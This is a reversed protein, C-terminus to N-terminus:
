SKIQGTVILVSLEGFASRAVSNRIEYSLSVHRDAAKRELVSIISYDYLAHATDRDISIFSGNDMPWFTPYLEYPGENHHTEVIRMHPSQYFALGKELITNIAFDPDSITFHDGTRILFTAVQMPDCRLNSLAWTAHCWAIPNSERPPLLTIQERAWEDLAAKGAVTNPSADRKASAPQYDITGEFSNGGGLAIGPALGGVTAIGSYYAPETRSRLSLAALGVLGGNKYLPRLREARERIASQTEHDTPQGAIRMLWECRSEADILQDLSRHVCVSPGRNRVFYVDVDLGACIISLCQELPIRIENSGDMGYRGVLISSVDTITPKVSFRVLTSAEFGFGVPPGSSILPRLSLGNPFRIQKTTDFGRDFRRSSVTVSSAAMFVSYFGVGFKGVPDNGAAALGPFEERSMPSSWFSSGFDLLPGTLVRYSMGLGNDGVSLVYDDGDSVLEVTVRGSFSKDLKRRGNISDRANQILERLVVALQQDAGYLKEGGLAGILRELNSVHIEVAKPEWGTTPIYKSAAAPSSTGSVRRIQFPPSTAAQPRQGLTEFSAMLEKDVLRIADYAVWWADANKEDFPKGATFIISSNEADALDLDARELWNQATWHQASIGHLSALARLFDPARRSDIHAADSCRLLCALKVPDVRWDRPMSPLANIQEPLGLLDEIPWHHSAAIRGIIQGYHKRLEHSEILYLPDKEPTEWSALALDSARSAHLARMAAFDAADRVQSDVSGEAQKYVAYADRWEVTERPGAQGGEYAEFCLAADHLLVAGGFVFAEAPNLPYDPGAILDATEWLADLHTADHITLGPLANAIRSTLASARERFVAYAAILKAHAEFYSGNHASSLTRKWLGTSKYGDM